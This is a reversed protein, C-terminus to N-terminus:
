ERRRGPLLDVSVVGLLILGLVVLVARNAPQAIAGYIILVAGVVACVIGRILTLNM